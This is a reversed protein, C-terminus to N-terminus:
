NRKYGGESLSIMPNLYDQWQELTWSSSTEVIMGNIRCTPTVHIGLQRHQKVYFKLVRISASGSNKQTETVIVKLREMVADEEVGELTAALAALRQSISTRTEDMVVADVFQERSAFLLRQYDNTAQIGYLHRIACVSEHMLSSQPHWPQPLQQFILKIRPTSDGNFAPIVEETLRKFIRACFPCCYDVFVELVLFPEPAPSPWCWLHGLPVAPQRPLPQAAVSSM